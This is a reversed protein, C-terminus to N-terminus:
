QIRRACQLHFGDDPRNYESQQGLLLHPQTNGLNYMAHHTDVLGRGYLNTNGGVDVASALMIAKVTEPWSFLWSQSASYFDLVQAVAGSVHPAAMSTGQITQYYPASGSLYWPYISTIM